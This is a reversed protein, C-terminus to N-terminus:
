DSIMEFATPPRSDSNRADLAQRMMDDGSKCYAVKIDDQILCMILRMYPLSGRWKGAQVDAEEEVLLVINRLKAIERTLFLVDEPDTLPRKVLWAHSMEKHWNSSKPMKTMDIKAARRNVELQYELRSPKADIKTNLTKLCPWPALNLDFIPVGQEDKLGVCLLLLQKKSNQNDQYVKQAESRRDGDDPRSVLNASEM